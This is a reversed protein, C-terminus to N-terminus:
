SKLIRLIKRQIKKLLLSYNVPFHQWKEAVYSIEYRRDLEPIFDDQIHFDLTSVQLLDSDIDRMAKTHTADENFGINNVLNVNPRICYLQNILCTYTWQYDWTDLNGNKIKKFANRWLAYWEDNPWITDLKLSNLLPSFQAFDKNLNVNKWSKNVLDNSRKWTAWGWMNFYRTLGYPSGKKNYGLNCGNISFITPDNKYKDLLNGAFNFFSEDPLVDDELIIGKDEENFFWNLAGQVAAGCGLNYDRFLMELECDWDINALIHERVEECKAHDSPVTSRPGDAAIYLKSPKAKQLIAFSERTEQPRNFVLYLIPTNM